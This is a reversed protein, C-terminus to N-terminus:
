PAKLVIPLFTRWPNSYIVYVAGADRYNAPHSNVDVQWSGIVLDPRGDLDLDARSVDIGLQDITDSRVMLAAANTMSLTGALGQGGPIIFVRKISPAGVILDLKLDGAVDGVALSEGTAGTLTLVARSSVDFTQGGDVPGPIVYVRDGSALIVDNKVDGTFDAILVGGDQLGTIAIDAPSTALRRTGAAIPGLIVYATSATRAILDVKTGDNVRGIALAGLGAGPGPGYVTYSAPTTGLDHLGSLDTRGFVVFVAGADLSPGDDALADGAALDAINDDNLDGADLANRGAFAGVDKAPARLTFNAPTTDSLTRTGILSPGGFLVFVTPTVLGTGSDRNGSVILDRSGDDNLDGGALEEGFHAHRFHSAVNINAPSVLLDMTGTIRGGFNLLGFLRGTASLTAGNEAWDPAAVVLDPRSDGTVDGGLISYGIWDAGGNSALGANGPGLLTLDAPTADLDIVRLAEPAARAIHTPAHQMWIVTVVIPVAALASSAGIKLLRAFM